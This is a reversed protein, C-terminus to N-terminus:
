DELVVAEVRLAIGSDCDGRAVVRVSRAFQRPMPLDVEPLEAIWAEAAAGTPLTVAVEFRCGVFTASAWDHEAVLAVEAACRHVEASAALARVLRAGSM